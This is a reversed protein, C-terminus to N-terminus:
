PAGPAGARAVVAGALLLGFMGLAPLDWDWDIGAHLALAALAACPGAALVADGSVLRRACAAIGGVFAALLALGILGLEAATELYLSHADVAGEAVDRERLWEVRFGATGVGQVPAGAFSGAAVRWYDARNSGIDAFRQATAGRAPPSARDVAVLVLAGALVVVAGWGVALRWGRGARAWLPRAEPAVLALTVLGLGAAALAGRSYTLYLGALLPALAMAAVVRSPAARTRDVAIRACLVVGVAALAGMANWYSLPQDLRGDAAFSSTLDLVGLDGLLGYGVVVLALSALALELARAVRRDGCAAVALPLVAAYLALRWVDERGVEGLPAWLLSLATWAALGALGGVAIRGAASPPVIAIRAGPGAPLLVVVAVAM